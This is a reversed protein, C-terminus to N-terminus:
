PIHKLNANSSEMGLFDFVETLAFEPSGEITLANLILISHKQFVSALNELYLDFLSGWLWTSMDTPFCDHDKSNLPEDQRQAMDAVPGAANDFDQRKVRKFSHKLDDDLSVIDSLVGDPFDEIVYIVKLAFGCTDKVKKLMRCSLKTSDVIEGTIHYSPNFSFSREGNAVSSRILLRNYESSLM